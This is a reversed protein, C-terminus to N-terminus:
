KKLEYNFTYNQNYKKNVKKRVDFCDQVSTEGRKQLILNYTEVISEIINESIELGQLSLAIKLQSITKDQVPELQSYFDDEKMYHKGFGRLLRQFFAIEKNLDETTLVFKNQEYKIEDGAIGKLYEIYKVKNKMIVM